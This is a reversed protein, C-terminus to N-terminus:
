RPACPVLPEVADVFAENLSGGRSMVSTCWRDPRHRRRRRPHQSEWRPEDGLHVRPHRLFAADWRYNLSGGRSMVSTCGRGRGRGVACRPINLSGGRSMVSTCAGEVGCEGHLGLPQSEWRPEDGLHVEAVDLDQATGILNLSGGRSMVSTCEAFGGLVGDAVAANLSGGRSMVSTCRVGNRVDLGGDSLNLSGGRSMVSTCRVDWDQVLAREVPQSEWRPEDGLHVPCTNGRSSGPGNLSGGRSM